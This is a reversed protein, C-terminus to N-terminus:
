QTNIPRTLDASTGQNGEFHAFYGGALDHAFLDWGLLGFINQLECRLSGASPQVADPVTKLYGPRRRTNM